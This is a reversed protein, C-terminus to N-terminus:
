SFPAAPCRDNSFRYNRTVAGACLTLTDLSRSGTTASHQNTLGIAVQITASNVNDIAILKGAAFDDRVFQLVALVQDETAEQRFVKLRMASTLELNHLPALVIQLGKTKIAIFDSDEEPYYLKVLCGTDLYIM